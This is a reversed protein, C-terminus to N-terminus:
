PQGAAVVTIPSKYTGSKLTKTSQTRVELTYDGAAVTPIKCDIFSSGTRSYVQARFEKDQSDIFFVGQNTEQADFSLRSGTLHLIEGPQGKDVSEKNDMNAVSYILPTQAPPADVVSVQLNRKLEDAVASTPRVRLALYDTSVTREDADVGPHRLHVSFTGFPTQVRKGKVLFHVLTDALNTLVATIDTESIVVGKAMFALVEEYSITESQVIRAVVPRDARLQSDVFAVQLM